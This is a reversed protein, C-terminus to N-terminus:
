LANYLPKGTAQDWLVCTERQNTLGLAVVQRGTGGTVAAIVERTLNWIVLPDHEVWGPQPYIQPLERYASLQPQGDAGFLVARIGTTGLDLALIYGM